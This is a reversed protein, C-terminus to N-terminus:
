AFVTSGDRTDHVGKERLILHGRFRTLKLVMSEIFLSSTKTKKVVGYRALFELDEDFTTFQQTGVHM